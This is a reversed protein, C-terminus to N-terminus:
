IRLLAELFGLNEKKNKMVLVPIHGNHHLLKDAVSGLLVNAIGTRGKSGIVILDANNKVADAYIKDSPEDDDDLSLSIKCNSGEIGENQLFEKADSESHARIIEAFEEYSKGSKHFGSPVVYTNQIILKSSSQQSLYLAHKFASKSASSFDVPVMIRNMRQQTKERVTLISCHGIKALENPLLGSGKLQDKKGTVILDIEKIESWRLIQDAANGERIEIKTDAEGKFFQDIKDEILDKLSEDAPAILDPYKEIVHKPLVLSEAVHFFYISDFNVFSNLFSTYSILVEDMETMDLAVLVRKIDQM